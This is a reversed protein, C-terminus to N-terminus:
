VSHRIRVPLAPAKGGRQVPRGVARNVSGAPDGLDVALSVFATRLGGRSGAV